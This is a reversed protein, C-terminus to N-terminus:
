LKREEWSKGCHRCRYKGPWNPPIWVDGGCHQCAHEVEFTDLLDNLLVGCLMHAIQREGIWNSALARLKELEDHKM